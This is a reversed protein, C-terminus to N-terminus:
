GIFQQLHRRQTELTDKLKVVDAMIDLHTLRAETREEKPLRKFTCDDMRGLLRTLDDEADQYTATPSVHRGDNEQPEPERDEGPDLTIPKARGIFGPGDLFALHDTQEVHFTAPTTLPEFTAGPPPYPESPIGGPPTAQGDMEPTIQAAKGPERAKRPKRPPKIPDVPDPTFLLASLWRMKIWSAVFEVKFMRGEKPTNAQAVVVVHWRRKTSGNLAPVTGKM